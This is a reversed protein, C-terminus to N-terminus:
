GCKKLIKEYKRELTKKVNEWYFASVRERLKKSRQKYTELNKILRIVTRLTKSFDSPDVLVGSGKMIRKFEPLDSAVVIKGLAMYELLKTPIAVATARTKPYLLFAIDAVNLLKRVQEHSVEGVLKVRDELNMTKVMKKIYDMYEGDGVLLLSWKSVGLKKLAYAIKLLIELGRIGPEVKGVYIMKVESKTSVARASLENDNNNEGNVWSKEIIPPLLAIKSRPVGHRKTLIYRMSPSVVLVLKSWKFMKAEFWNVLPLVIKKLFGIKYFSMFADFLELVLDHVVYIVPIGLRYAKGTVLFQILFPSISHVQLACIKEKDIMESTNLWIRIATVFENVIEKILNLGIQERIGRFEIIKACKKDLYVVDGTILVPKFGLQLVLECLKSVKLSAGSSGSYRLPFLILVSDGLQLGLVLM